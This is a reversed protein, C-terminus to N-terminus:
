CSYDTVVFLLDLLQGLVFVYGCRCPIFSWNRIGNSTYTSWRVFFRIRLATAQFWAIASLNFGWNFRPCWSYIYTATTVGWMGVQCTLAESEWIFSTTCTSAPAREGTIRDKAQCGQIAFWTWWVGRNWWRSGMERDVPKKSTSPAIGIAQVVYLISVQFSHCIHMTM